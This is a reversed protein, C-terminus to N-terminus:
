TTDRAPIRGWVYGTRTRHDHLHGLMQVLRDHAIADDPAGAGRHVAVAM